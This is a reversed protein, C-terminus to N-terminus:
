RLADVHTPVERQHTRPAQLRRAAGAIAGALYARLEYLFPRPDRLRIVDYRLGRGALKLFAAV